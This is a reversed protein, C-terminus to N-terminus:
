KNDFVYYRKDKNAFSENLGNQLLYSIMEEPTDTQHYIDNNNGFNTHSTGYFKPLGPTLSLFKGDKIFTNIASRRRPDTTTTTLYPCGLMMSGYMNSLSEGPDLPSSELIKFKIGVSKSAIHKLFSNSGDWSEKMYSGFSTNSIGDGYESLAEAAAGAVSKLVSGLASSEPIYEGLQTLSDKIFAVATNTASVIGSNANSVLNVSDGLLNTAVNKTGNAISSISGLGFGIVDALKPNEPLSVNEFASTYEYVINDNWYKKTSQWINTAIEIANIDKVASYIDNKLNSIPESDEYINDWSNYFPKYWRNNGFSTVQDKVFTISTDIVNAAGDKVYTYGDSIADGVEDMKSMADEYLSEIFTKDIASM